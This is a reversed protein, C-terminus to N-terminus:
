RKKKNKSKFNTNLEFLFDVDLPKSKLAYIIPNAECREVDLKRFSTTLVVIPPYKKLKLKAYLDIFEWGNIGPMNIDLFILDPQKGSKLMKKLYTLAKAAYIFFKYNKSVAAQEAIIKHYVNTADDDIFVILNFQEM